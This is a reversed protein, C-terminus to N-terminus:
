DIKAPSYRSIAEVLRNVEEFDNYFHVSLRIYGERYTTIVKQDALFHFLAKEAQITIIGSSCNQSRDAAIPYLDLTALQELLYLRLSKIRDQINTIGIQQIEKLAHGYGIINAYKLHGLEFGAATTKWNTSDAPDTNFDIMSNWGMAKKHLQPKIHDAVYLICTGYGGTLWKFTSGMLIDINWKEVDMPIAGLGQTGDVILLVKNKVCLQGLSELDTTIGSNYHVWSIVVIKAGAKFATEFDALDFSHDEARKIWSIKFGHSIWPLSVSPFEDKLIAVKKKQLLAQATMSMAISVDPTFAVEELKANILQATNSRAEEISSIWISRNLSANNLQDDAFSKMTKATGQSIAGSSATNLYTYRELLPYNSRIKNWDIVEM